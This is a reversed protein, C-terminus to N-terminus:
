WSKNLQHSQFKGFINVSGLPHVRQMSLFQKGAGCECKFTMITSLISFLWILMIGHLWASLGNVSLAINLVFPAIQTDSSNLSLHAYLEGDRGRCKRDADQSICKVICWFYDLSFVVAFLYVTAYAPTYYGDFGRPPRSCPNQSEAKRRSQEM